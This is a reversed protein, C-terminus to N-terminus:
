PNIEARYEKALDPHEVQARSLADSYSLEKDQKMLDRTFAALKEGASGANVDKDRTAIEKFDIVKPLEALFEKFWRLRSTKKEASFEVPEEGDLSLMFERLGMKEWAPIIKGDKKLTECFANTEAKRAEIRAAKEREAFERQAQEKAEKAAKDAAAKERAQIEAETFAHPQVDDPLADDPVKSMDIGMSSLTNKLIDKISMHKEKRNEAHEGIKFKKRFRDLRETIISREEPSYQAQNKERGWYSAAARTQDADPCPYRYNVPDLFQDDPVDDWESPKTVHGGEKVGIKYKKSRARQAEKEEDTAVFEINITGEGTNFKIKELDKVAPAAAGLFGVHLLRTGDPSLRVSRNKFLGKKVMEEFEAVIEKGKAYLTGGVRKIGGIWGWAPSDTEPHGIVIPVDEDPGFNNVIADLDGETWEKTNGAADTWTGTRFIEFWDALGAFTKKMM